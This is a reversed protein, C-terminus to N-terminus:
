KFLLFRKALFNFSFIMGTAIVKAFLYHWDLIDVFCWMLGELLILGTFGIIFFISYSRFNKPAISQVFVWNASLFYHLVSAISFATGVAILYYFHFFEVQVTLMSFDLATIFLGAIIYRYYEKLLREL